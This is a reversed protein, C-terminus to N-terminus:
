HQINKEIEFANGLFMSILISFFAFFFSNLFTNANTYGFGFVLIVHGIILFFGNLVTVAFIWPWLRAFFKRITKNLYKQTLNHKSHIMMGSIGALIGLVPPGVGGGTFLLVIALMLLITGGRKRGTFVVSWLILIVSVVLCVVGTILMNPILTLGPDGGMYEAIPGAKWSEIFIGEPQVSGQLIEGVGHLMCGLGGLVGFVSALIHPANINELFGGAKM